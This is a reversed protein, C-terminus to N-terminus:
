EDELEKRIIDYVPLTDREPLYEERWRPEINNEWSLVWELAAKWGRRLADCKTYDICLYEIEDCWKEFEKM